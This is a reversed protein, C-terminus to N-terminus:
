FEEWEAEPEGDDPAAEYAEPAEVVAPEAGAAADQRREQPEVGMEAADYLQSLEDPFAERLAHVIAVKRIMTGPKSSWTKNLTGDKRRGAYEDFAVEDYMPTEYGDVFVSCWGGVLRETQKGYMSGERRTMKGNRDVVTIGAKYGRFRPNHSARKTFVDKGVVMTAPQNGYKVLYAERVLPNLKQSKCLAAFLLVERDTVNPNDSVVNRIFSDTLTLETGDDATYKALQKSM